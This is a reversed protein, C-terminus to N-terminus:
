PRPVAPAVRTDPAPPDKAERTTGEDAREIGATARRVSGRSAREPRETARDGPAWTAWARGSAVGSPPDPPMGSREAIQVHTLHEFLALEMVARESRDLRDLKSLILLRDAAM